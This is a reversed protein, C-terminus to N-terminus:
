VCVTSKYRDSSIVKLQTAFRRKRLSHIVHGYKRLSVCCFDYKRQPSNNNIKWLFLGLILKQLPSVFFAVRGETNLFGPGTPCMWSSISAKQLIYEFCRSRLSIKVMPWSPLHVWANTTSVLLCLLTGVVRYSSATSKLYKTNLKWICFKQMRCQIYLKICVIKLIKYGTEWICFKQM